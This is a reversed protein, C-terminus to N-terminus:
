KKAELYSQASARLADTLKYLDFITEISVREEKRTADMILISKRNGELYLRAVTRRPNDDIVIACYSRTDRMCVRHPEIVPHLIARIIFLAELEEVTTNVGSESVIATEAAPEAPKETSSAAPADGQAMSSDSIVMAAKLRENILDNILQRWANKIFVSFRARASQTMRGEHIRGALLKILDESPERLEASILRKLERTYRYEIAAAVLKEADFVAKSFQRFWEIAANDLSMMDLELFPRTDMRNPQELDSYVLYRVGNTFIGFRVQTASFYRFLQSPTLKDLDTDIAKCEVIIIPRGNQMIAYDVKEGQKVGVDAVLEPTVEKPDFVNYGLANIFPLILATKTAEETRIHDRQEPIRSAIERIRDAFDM